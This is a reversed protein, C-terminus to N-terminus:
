AASVASAPPQSDAPQRRASLKELFVPLPLPLAFFYGQGTPVGCERLADVQVEEEIGEAVTSMGLRDALRVLMEVVSRATPDRNIADVFLKDIKLVDAGLRQLQLLGSNGIGVDDIAV